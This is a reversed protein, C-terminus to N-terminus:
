CLQSIYMTIASTCLDSSFTMDIQLFLHLGSIMDQSVQFTVSGQTFESSHSPCVSLIILKNLIGTQIGQVDLDPSPFFHCRGHYFFTWNSVVQSYLYECLNTPDSSTCGEPPDHPFQSICNGLGMSGMELIHMLSSGSLQQDTSKMETGALIM